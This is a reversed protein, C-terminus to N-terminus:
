YRRHPGGYSERRVIQCSRRNIQGLSLQGYLCSCGSSRGARLVLCREPRDRSCGVGDGSLLRCRCFGCWAFHWLVIVGMHATKISLHDPDLADALLLGFMLISGMGIVLLITKMLHLKSLRLMGIIYGLNTAGVRDLVFGFGGGILLALILKTM